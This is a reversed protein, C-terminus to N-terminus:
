LGFTVEQNYLSREQVQDRRHSKVQLRTLNMRKDRNVFM